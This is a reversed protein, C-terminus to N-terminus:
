LSADEEIYDAYNSWYQKEKYDAGSGTPVYIKRGAANDDFMYSGGTPPTTPKCYVTKLSSCDYFAAGEITTVSDGITVSTLSHCYLFAHDGITTVSNGITVSTLSDCNYFAWAGITTVSDPITYTTGSANAYAIITNDKILCRGNDAAFKGKFEKLSTCSYFADGGITTVSDPITVSTLSTCQEFACVGITTVSNGITVSTLSTCGLFAYNGITTVSNGITVKTFQSNYFPSDEPSLVSPINSNIILEGTCGAFVGSGFSTVGKGITVSTLSTCQEFACVGITTVSNGITVSTLSRCEYFAYDGITTVSNGITVKTFQSNYFPSDESSSVSPINSNIILEGTCGAFVGSGFSTVGKGISVSTLSDCGAFANDGITTVSDPLIISKLNKCNYFLQNPITTITGNFRMVGVGNEYKNATMDVGIASVDVYIPQGDTSTYILKNSACSAPLQEITFTELTTKDKDILSITAVRSVYQENPAITFTLKEKRVARTDAVSVWSQSEKDIVVNYELNTTVLVDFEGGDAEIIITYDSEVTFVPKEEDDDDPNEIPNDINPINSEECSTAFLGFLAFLFFLKKM